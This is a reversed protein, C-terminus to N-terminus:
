SPKMESYLRDLTVEVVGDDDYQNEEIAHRAHEIKDFRVEPLGKLLQKWHLLSANLAATENSGTPKKTENKSMAPIRAPDSQCAGNASTKL